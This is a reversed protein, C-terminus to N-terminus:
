GRFVGGVAVYAVLFGLNAPALLTALSGKMDPMGDFSVAFVVISARAWVM